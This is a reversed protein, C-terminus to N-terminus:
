ALCTTKSLSRGGTWYLAASQLNTSNLPSFSIWKFFETAVHRELFLTRTVKFLGGAESQIAKM